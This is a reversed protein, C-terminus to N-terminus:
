NVIKKAGSNEKRLLVVFTPVFCNLLILIPRPIKKVISQAAGYNLGFEEPNKMLRITVNESKFGANKSLRLIDGYSLALVDWVKRKVLMLYARSIKNPFWALFPLKFHNELIWYRNPTALYCVGDKKLVRHIESLHLKQDLVHEITHNTIVVDFTGDAFPLREDPVKRYAYGRKEVREDRLDVSSVKKFHRSFYNAIHGSGTGIDLAYSSALKKSTPTKKLVSIIKKAKEIRQKSSKLAHSVRKKNEEKQM